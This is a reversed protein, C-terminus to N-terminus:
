TRAGETEAEIWRVYDANGAQVPWAVVCPCTYSHLSKVTATLAPLLADRTKAILVTERGEEIRGQWWYLSTTGPLINVCAALRAEVLARGITKAEEDSAYTVYVFLPTVGTM